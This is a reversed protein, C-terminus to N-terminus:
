HAGPRADIKAAVADAKGGIDAGTFVVQVAFVDVVAVTVDGGPVGQGHDAPIVGRDTSGVQLRLVQVHIYAVVQVRFGQLVGAAYVALAPIGAATNSHTGPHATTGTDAVAFGVAAARPYRYLGAQNAGLRHVDLHTVMRLHVAGKDGVDFIVAGVAAVQVEIGACEAETIQLVVVLFFAVVQADAEAGAAVGASVGVGPCTLVVLAAAPFHFAAMVLQVTLLGGTRRNSLPIDRHTLIRFRAA